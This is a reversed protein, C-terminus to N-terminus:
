KKASAKIIAQLTIENQIMGDGLPTQFKVGFDERNIDTPETAITANNGDTSVNANFKVPKTTGKITLNGELVTNYDGTKNEETKTIEFTATPFKKVSFFDDSKLHTELKNKQEPDDQLDVSNLSNMDALFKGGIINDGQIIIEGSVFKITGFHSTSESKFIKYGKWEMKSNQPDLTLIKGYVGTAPQNETLPKDKKCSTAAAGLIALSALFSFIKKNM